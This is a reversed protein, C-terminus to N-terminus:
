GETNSMPAGNTVFMAQSSPPIIELGENVITAFFFLKLGETEFHSQKLVRIKTLTEKFLSPEFLECSDKELIAYIM